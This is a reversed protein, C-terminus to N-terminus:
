VNGRGRGNTRFLRDDFSAIPNPGPAVERHSVHIDRALLVCLLVTGRSQCGALVVPRSGDLCQARVDLRNAAIRGKLQLMHRRANAEARELLLESSKRFGLPEERFCDGDALPVQAGLM